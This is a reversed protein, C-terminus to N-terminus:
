VSLMREAGPVVQPLALAPSIDGSSLRELSVAAQFGVHLSLRLLRRHMEQAAERGQPDCPLRGESVVWGRPSMRCRGAGALGAESAKGCM